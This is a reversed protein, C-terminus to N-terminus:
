IHHPIRFVPSSLTFRYPGMAMTGRRRHSPLVERLTTRRAPLKAPANRVMLEFHNRLTSCSVPEDNAVNRILEVPQRVHEECAATLQNKAYFVQVYEPYHYLAVASAERPAELISSLTLFLGSFERHYPDKSKRNERDLISIMLHNQLRRGADSDDRDRGAKNAYSLISMMEYIFPRESSM